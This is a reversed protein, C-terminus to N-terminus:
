YRFLVAINQSGAGITWFMAYDGRKVKENAIAEYFAIFPSSTGTYGYKGGIFISHAEDIDMLKRLDVINAYAYQSFCFMSVDSVTLQNEQLLDLMNKAASELSVNEFPKWDLLWERKDANKLNSAGCGPFLINNHEESNIRCKSGLLGREDTTKELIIACAADGFHGHCFENDPNVVSNIYDSGVILARKVEKTVSMYKTVNELSLIMGACDGNLDLCICDPKGNIAHHLHISSPPATYEPFFSSLVIMDIDEGTLGTKDLVKEAAAIAMTVSNEKESDILYRKDMGIIDEFFHALDKGKKKFHDIYTDNPVVQQGHYVEIGLLNVNIM